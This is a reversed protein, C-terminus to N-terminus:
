PKQQWSLIMGWTLMLRSPSIEGQIRYKWWWPCGPCSGPPLPSCKKSAPRSRIAQEAQEGKAGLVMLGLTCWGGCSPGELLLGWGLFHVMPKGVPWGTPANEWSLTRRELQGYGTDRQCVVVLVSVTKFHNLRHRNSNIFNKYFHFVM